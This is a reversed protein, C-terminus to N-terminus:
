LHGILWLVYQIHHFIMCILPDQNATTVIELKKIYSDYAQCVDSLPPISGETCSVLWGWGSGQIAATAANFRKKFEEVSNFDRELAKKLPGDELKGGAENAPSLNKWFLSHNIHGATSHAATKETSM